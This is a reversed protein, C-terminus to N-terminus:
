ADQQSNRLPLIFNAAQSREIRGHRAYHLRAASRAPNWDRRARDTEVTRLGNTRSKGDIATTANGPEPVSASGRIPARTELLLAPFLVRLRGRGGAAKRRRKMRAGRMTEEGAVDEGDYVIRCRGANRPPGTSESRSAPAPLPIVVLFAAALKALFLAADPPLLRSPPV